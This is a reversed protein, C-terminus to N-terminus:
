NELILLSTVIQMRNPLLYDLRTSKSTNRKLLSMVLQYFEQADEQNYGLLFEKPGNPMKALLKKTDFTKGQSGYKGNLNDMLTKLANTFVM